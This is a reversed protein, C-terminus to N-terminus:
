LAFAPLLSCRTLARGPSFVCTHTTSCASRDTNSDAKSCLWVSQVTPSTPSRSSWLAARLWCGPAGRLVRAPERVHELVDGFVVVDFSAAEFHESFDMSEVDGVVLRDLAPRAQEAAEPDIEVGSVVNGTGRLIRALYGTSCGVDLVRKGEGVLAAVIAQSTNANSLDDKIDYKVQCIKTAWGIPM